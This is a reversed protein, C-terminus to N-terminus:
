EASVEYVAEVGESVTIPAPHLGTDPGSALAEEVITEEGASVETTAAEQLAAVTLGEAAAMQEAKRRARKMAASIAKNQLEQRTKEYLQFEVTQIQGGASTVELVVSEVADPRCEIHLRETVQFAADTVPDFMDDAERVQVDVTRIHDSSVVAISERLTAVQDTVLARADSATAGDGIVVAEVTALEPRRECRGVATVTVTRSSM